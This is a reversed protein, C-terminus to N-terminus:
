GRWGNMWRMTGPMLQEEEESLVTQVLKRGRDMRGDVVKRRRYRGRTQVKFVRETNLSEDKSKTENSMVKEYYSPIQNWSTEVQTTYRFPFPKQKAKRRAEEGPVSYLALDLAQVSYAWDLDKKMLDVGTLKSVTHSISSAREPNKKELDEDAYLPQVYKTNDSEEESRTENTLDIEHHASNPGSPLLYTTTPVLSTKQQAAPSPQTPEEGLLLTMIDNDIKKLEEDYNPYQVDKMIYNEIKLLEEDLDPHQMHETNENEDKM